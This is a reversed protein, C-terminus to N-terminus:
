KLFQSDASRALKLIKQVSNRAGIQARVFYVGNAAERGDDDRGDWITSIQHASSTATLVRIRAGHLTFIEFRYAATRETFASVTIRVQATFPNPYSRLLFDNPLNEKEQVGTSAPATVEVDALVHRNADLGGMIFLQDDCVVAAHLERAHLLSKDEFWANTAPDYYEVVHTPGEQATGGLAWLRDLLVASAMNGRATLMETRRVGGHAFHYRELVPVPGFFLGGFTFLSDNFSLAELSARALTLQWRVFSWQQTAPDFRELSKLYADGGYFGGIVLLTDQLVTAAPGDRGTQLRPELIEWRNSQENFREVTDLTQEDRSGGIVYITDRFVVAAANFRAEQLDAAFNSWTKTKPNYSEVKVLTQSLSDRGGIVVIQDHWVVAALGYRPTPMPAALRQWPALQGQPRAPVALLCLWHACLLAWKMTTM